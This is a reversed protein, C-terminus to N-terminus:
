VGAAKKLNTKHCPCVMHLCPNQERDCIECYDNKKTDAWIACSGAPAGNKRAEVWLPNKKCGPCKLAGCAKIGQESRDCVGNKNKDSYAGCTQPPRSPGPKKQRNEASFMRLNWWAATGLLLIKFFSRRSYGNM